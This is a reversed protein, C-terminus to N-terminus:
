ADKSDHLVEGQRWMEQFLTTLPDMLQPDDHRYIEDPIADSGPAKESSLQQVARIHEHLSPALDLCVPSSSTPSPPPVTSPAESTSPKYIPPDTLVPRYTAKGILLTTGDDSLLPATGRTPPGYIAEISAFNKWESRDAYAQIEEAKRATWTDQM